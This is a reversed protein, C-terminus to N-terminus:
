KVYHEGRNQKQKSEIGNLYNDIKKWVVTHDSYNRIKAIDRYTKCEIFRHRFILRMEPDPIDNIFATLKIVQEMCKVYEKQLTIRLETLQLAIDQTKNSIGFGKPMGTINATIKETSLEGIRDELWEAERQRWFLNDLEHAKM